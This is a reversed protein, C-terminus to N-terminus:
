VRRLSDEKSHCTKCLTVGMSLDHSFEVLVGLAHFTQSSVDLRGLGDLGLINMCERVITRFPKIHHVELNGGIGCQTCAFSDRVMVGRCWEKTRCRLVWSPSRNGKWRPSDRGKLIRIHGSRVRERYTRSVRERVEPRFMPNNEKMRDSLFKSLEERSMRPRPRAGGKWNPNLAGIKSKARRARTLTKCEACLVSSLKTGSSGRTIARTEHAVSVGCGRCVVDVTRFKYSKGKGRCGSCTREQGRRLAIAGCVRCPKEKTRCQYNARHSENRCEPSGCIKACSHKQSIDLGCFLCSRLYCSKM